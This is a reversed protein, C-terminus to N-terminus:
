QAGGRRQADLERRKEDLRDKLAVGMDIITNADADAPLPPAEVGLAIAEGSRIRYTERLKAIDPAPSPKPASNPWAGNAAGNPRRSDNQHTQSADEDGGLEELSVMGINVADRLARAKARTEAMRIIHPAMM